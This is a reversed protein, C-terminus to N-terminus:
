VINIAMYNIQQQLLDCFILSFFQLPKSTVQMRAERFNITEQHWM